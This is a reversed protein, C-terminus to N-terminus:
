LGREGPKTCIEPTVLVSKKIIPTQQFKWHSYAGCYGRFESVSAPCSMGSTNKLKRPSLVYTEQLIAMEGEKSAEDCTKPIQLLQIKGPVWCDFLQATYKSPRPDKDTTVPTSKMMGLLCTSILILIVAQMRLLLNFVTDKVTRQSYNQREYQLGGEGSLNM